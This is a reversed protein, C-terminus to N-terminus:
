SDHLIHPQKPSSKEPFSGDALQPIAKPAVNEAPKGGAAPRYHGDDPSSRGGRLGRRGDATGPVDCLDRRVGSGSPSGTPHKPDGVRERKRYPRERYCM